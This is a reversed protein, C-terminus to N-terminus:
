NSKMISAASQFMICYLPIHSHTDEVSKWLLLLLSLFLDRKEPSNGRDSLDHNGVLYAAAQFGVMFNTGCAEARSTVTLFLLSASSKRRLSLPVGGLLYVIEM